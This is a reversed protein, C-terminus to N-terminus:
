PHLTGIERIEVLGGEFELNPCHRSMQVAEEIDAARLIVFGGVIEKGEMFPGDTLKQQRGQLVKGEPLLPQGGGLRNDEALGRIWEQWRNLHEEIQEPSLERRETGGGRFLLLFEKM